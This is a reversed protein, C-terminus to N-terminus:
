PTKMQLSIQVIQLIVQMFALIIGMGGIILVAWFTFWSASDRKDNWLERWTRPRKNSLHHALVALKSRLIPFDKSLVYFESEPLWDVFCNQKRSCLETLNRDNCGGPLDEFPSLSRFLRRSAKNQGFLLRYSLLTERLLDNVDEHTAWYLAAMSPAACSHLTPKIHGKDQSLLNIACFTPFRFLFLTSSNADFELHCALSDTWRIQIGGLGTLLHVNFSDPSLTKPKISAQKNDESALAGINYCPLLVGFGMLFEYLARRSAGQDQRLEAYAYGRHGDTEDVIVLQDPRCSGMDPKYLMTQWGIIAFVLNRANSLANAENGLWMLKESVMHTVISDISSDIMSAQAWVEKWVTTFTLMPIDTINAAPEQLVSYLERPQLEM